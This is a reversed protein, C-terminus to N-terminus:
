LAREFERGDLEFAPLKHEAFGDEMDFLVLHGFGFQCQELMQAVM